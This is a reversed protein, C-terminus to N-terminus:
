QGEEPPKVIIDELLLPHYYNCAPFLSTMSAM